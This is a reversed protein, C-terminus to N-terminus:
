MVLWLLLALMAFFIYAIYLQIHGHQLRRLKGTVTMVPRTLLRDIGLEVIDDSHSKYRCPTPFLGHIGSFEKRVRVFPRYFAVMSDAFSSGTYQMRSTPRTFGCGWTTSTAPTGRRILRRVLMVLATLGLLAAAGLSITGVTATPDVAPGPGLLHAGAKVALPVFLQPLLGIAACATALIVMATKITGGAPTAAAAKESRPEGLYVVGVVKTFCAIALGGIVALSLIVLLVVFLLPAQIGAGQFAGTYILYESVFGNFPPLGCIAIAGALFAAGTVPMRKLLGGLQEIALTRARHLVAGAGMFLLSKFIAHNLVHLLGGALGLVAMTRNGTAIGLMGIGLGLLIIGINEVSHYALLQKLNHQGLAYVVGMVGTVAGVVIVVIACTTGTPALLAYMRIIGYIGMKIMVGSMVASVHSPAAPHAKPLWVHLPMIGAKSGFGIFALLFILLKSGEPVRSFAAFDMTGTHLYVLGFAAFMAMAGAQAFVFYVYGARRTERKEFDHVVLFFSSLSMMEWALAFTIINDAAAVLAMSVVLITFFLYNVAVRLGRAENELYHFSYFLAIPSIFFVPLLFFAALSDIRLTLTLPGFFPAGATLPPTNSALVSLAFTLGLGSGALVLAATVAKMLSFRHRLTFPLLGAATLILLAEFFPTM